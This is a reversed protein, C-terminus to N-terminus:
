SLPHGNENRAQVDAGQALLWDVAGVDHTSMAKHLLTNGYRDVEDLRAAQELAADLAEPTSSHTRLVHLFSPRDRETAQALLFERVEPANATMAPTQGWHDKADLSAGARLLAQAMEVNHACHLPQQGGHDTAAVDAGHALLLRAVDACRVAHLPQTGDPAVASVDAGANILLQASEPRQLVHLVSWGFPDSRASVDAGHALAEKVAKPSPYHSFLVQSHANM